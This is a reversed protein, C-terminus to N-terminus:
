DKSLKSYQGLIFNGLSKTLQMEMVSFIERRMIKSSNTEASKLNEIQKSNRPALTPEPERLTIQEPNRRTAEDILRVLQSTPAEPEKIRQASQGGDV